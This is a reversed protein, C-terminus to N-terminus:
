TLPLSAASPVPGLTAFSWLGDSIYRLSDPAGSFVLVGLGVRYTRADDYGYNFVNTYTLGGWDFLLSGLTPQTSMNFDAGAKVKADTVYPTLMKGSTLAPIEPESPSKALYFRIALAATRM